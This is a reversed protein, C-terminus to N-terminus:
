KLKELQYEELTQKAYLLIEDDIVPIELKDFMEKTFLLRELLDEKTCPFISPIFWLETIMMFLSSLAKPYKTKGISGDEIAEQFFKEFYPVVVRQNSEIYSALIRPNDLLPVAMMSVKHQEQNSYQLKIVKKIKELGSLGKEGKVLEFPNNEFFLKDGIADLVEEKSKFHHYFAGRTLGGLNNVIDLITTEEYGKELFLKLSVDLIKGVTEEPYKNRPM